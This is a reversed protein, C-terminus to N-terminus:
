AVGLHAILQHLATEGINFKRLGDCYRGPWRPLAPSPLNFHGFIMIYYRVNCFGKSYLSLSDGEAIAYLEVAAPGGFVHRGVKRPDDDRLIPDLFQFLLENPRMVFSANILTPSLGELVSYGRRAARLPRSKIGGGM